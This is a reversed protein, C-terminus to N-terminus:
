QPVPGAPGATRPNAPAPPARRAARNWRALYSDGAFTEIERAAEARWQAMRRAKLNDLLRFERRAAVVRERQAEMRRDAERAQEELARTRTNIAARYAEMAWLDLATAVAASKVEREAERGAQETEQVRRRAEEGAASLRALEAEAAEITARRWGLASELPFRFAKM